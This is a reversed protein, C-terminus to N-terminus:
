HTEASIKIFRVGLFEGAADFDFGFSAHALPMCASSSCSGRLSYPIIFTESGAVMPAIQPLMDPKRDDSDVALHIEPHISRLARFQADKEMQAQPLRSLDDVPILAPTGNLLVWGHTAGGSVPYAM